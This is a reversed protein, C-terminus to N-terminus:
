DTIIQWADVQLMEMLINKTKDGAASLFFKKFIEVSAISVSNELYCLIPMPLPQTKIIPRVAEKLKPNIKWLQELNNETVLALDVQGLVLAFLADSDKPVSVINIDASNKGLSQFLVTNLISESDPGMSTMALSHHSINDATIPNGTRTLLIKKYFNYGNHLPKLLPKLNLTQGYKVIYWSPLFLFAPKNEKLSHDFDVFHTFPQFHIPQESNQLFTDM